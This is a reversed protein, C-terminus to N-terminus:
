ENDEERSEPKTPANGILDQFHSYCKAATAAVRGKLKAFDDSGGIRALIDPWPRPVDRERFGSFERAFVLDAVVAQTLFPSNSFVAELLHRGPGDAGLAEAFAGVESEGTAQAAERWRELLGKPAM